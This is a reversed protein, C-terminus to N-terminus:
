FFIVVLVLNWMWWSWGLLIPRTPTQNLWHRLPMTHLWDQWQNCRTKWKHNDPFRQNHTNIPFQGLKRKNVSSPAKETIKGNILQLKISPLVISEITTTEEKFEEDGFNYWTEELIKTVLNIYSLYTNGKMHEIM